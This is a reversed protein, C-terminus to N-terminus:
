GNDLEATHRPPNAFYMSRRRVAHDIEMAPVAREKVVGHSVVAAAQGHFFYLIRYHIGQFGIRLEYIGDRLLDAEPRRLEYGLVALRELRAICKVVVKAPLDDLWDQLPVSGDTERFLVLHIPPV